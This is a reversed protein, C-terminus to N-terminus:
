LFFLWNIIAFLPGLILLSWGIYGFFSPMRVKNTEAIAKIMFNPANGIYSLAGMFVSGASIALLTYKLSGMLQAADGGALHFFVLYTPANDLFASLTGSLLFYMSNVPLGDRNVLEVLPAFAGNLGVGLIALVPAATIFIGAFIKTVELIPEWAFRNLRRPEQNTFFLSILILIILTIDRLINQLHLEVHYITFTVNPNWIGSILVAVMVGALLLVNTEGEIRCIKEQTNLIPKQSLDERRYFYSDCTHFIILLPTGIIVFPIFMYLMPWFFHVGNLFGLFLPPDGLATLCGGINGVLFIFFLIIHTRQRRWSNMNLLPRILLMAAGTTGIWSAVLSGILLVMTNNIPTGQWRLKVRIGGTIVYLAGILIIFPVFHLLYTHIVEYTMTPIGYILAMPFMVLLSWFLSVKGYHQHWFKTLTLPLLALSLLLGIFPLAWLFQIKTGDIALDSNALAPSGLTLYAFLILFSAPTISQM